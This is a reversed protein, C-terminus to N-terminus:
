GSEYPHERQQKARRQRYQRQYEYYCGTCLDYVVNKTYHRPEGCKPCPLHEGAKIRALLRDYKRRKYERRKVRLCETCYAKIRGTSCRHLPRERCQPCIADDSRRRGFLAYERRGQERSCQQCYGWKGRPRQGCEPCIGDYRYEKVPLEYIKMEKLGRYTIRYRIGDLGKSQVIWDRQILATITTGRLGDLDVWPTDSEEMDRLHMLVAMMHRTILPYDKLARQGWPIKQLYKKVSM